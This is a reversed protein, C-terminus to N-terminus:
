KKIFLFFDIETIGNEMLRSSQRDIKFTVLAKEKTSENKLSCSFILLATIIFKLM